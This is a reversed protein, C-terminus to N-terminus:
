HDLFHYGSPMFLELKTRIQRIKQEKNVKNFHVKNSHRDTNGTSDEAHILKDNKFHLFKIIDKKGKEAARMLGNRGDKGTQNIDAGNQFMSEITKLDEEYCADAFNEKVEGEM